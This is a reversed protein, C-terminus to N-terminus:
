RSINVCKSLSDSTGWKHFWALTQVPNGKPKQKVELHLLQITSMFTFKDDELHYSRVNTKWIFPQMLTRFSCGGLLTSPRRLARLDPGVEVQIGKDAVGEGAVGGM